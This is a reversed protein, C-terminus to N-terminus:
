TLLYAEYLTVKKCFCSLNYSLNFFTRCVSVIWGPDKKWLENGNNPLTVNEDSLQVDGSGKGGGGGGGGGSGMEGSIIELGCNACTKTVTDKSAAQREGAVFSVLSHFLFLPPGSSGLLM